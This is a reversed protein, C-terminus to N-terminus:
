MQWVFVHPDMENVSIWRIDPHDLKQPLVERISANFLNLHVTLDPYAYIVNMFVKDVELTASPEEQREWTLSQQKIEGLKIKWGCVGM